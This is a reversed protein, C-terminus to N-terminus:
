VSVYTKLLLIACKDFLIWSLLTMKSKTGDNQLLDMHIQVANGCVNSRYISNNFKLSFNLMYINLCFHNWEFRFRKLNYNQKPINEIGITYFFVCFGM